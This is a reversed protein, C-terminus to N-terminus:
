QQQPVVTIGTVSFPPMNFTKALSFIVDSVGDLILSVGSKDQSNLIDEFPIDFKLNNPSTGPEFYLLIETGPFIIAPYQITVYKNDGIKKACGIRGWTTDKPEDCSIISNIRETYLHVDYSPMTFLRLINYSKTDNYNSNLYNEKPLSTIHPAESLSVPVNHWNYCANDNVDYNPQFFIAIEQGPAVLDGNELQTGWVNPTAYDYAYAFIKGDPLNEDFTVHHGNCKVGFHLDYDPMKFMKLKYCELVISYDKLENINTVDMPKINGNLGEWDYLIGREGVYGNAPKFYIAITQGPAVLDGNNLQTGWVLNAYDYTYAFIEGVTAGDPEDWIIHNGVPELGVNIEYDPMIFTSLINYGKANNDNSGDYCDVLLTDGSPLTIPTLSTPLGSWRYPKTDGFDEEPQFVITLKKGPTIRQGSTVELDFIANEGGWIYAYITGNNPNSWSLEHQEPTPTPEPEPEPEPTPTSSGNELCLMLYEYSIWGSWNLSPKNWNNNYYHNDIVLLNPINGKIKGLLLDNNGDVYLYISDSNKYIIPNINAEDLTNIVAVNTDSTFYLYLNKNLRSLIANILEGDKKYKLSDVKSTDEIIKGLFDNRYENNKRFYVNYMRNPNSPRVSWESQENTIAYTDNSDEREPDCGAYTIYFTSGGDQSQGNVTCMLDKSKLIDLVDETQVYGGLIETLSDNTIYKETEPLNVNIEIGM